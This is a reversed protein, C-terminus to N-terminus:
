SQPHAAILREFAARSLRLLESDRMAIVTASRPEGSILGTEGVSEGQTVAGLTRVRGEEDRRHAALRGHILVYFADSPEDQAFLEAGGPLVLWEMTDALDSLTHADLGAFLPLAALRLLLERRAPDDSRPM